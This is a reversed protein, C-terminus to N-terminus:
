FTITGSTNFQYIKRNDVTFNDVTGTIASPDPM